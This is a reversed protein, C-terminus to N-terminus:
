STLITCTAKKNPAAMRTTPPIQKVYTTIQAKSKNRFYTLYKIATDRLTNQRLTQIDLQLTLMYNRPESLENDIYIKDNLYNISLMQNRKRYTKLRYLKLKSAITPIGYKRRITLNTEQKIGHIYFGQVIRRICKSQFAQLCDIQHNECPIVHLSYTLISGILVNFPMLKLNANIEKYGLIKKQNTGM